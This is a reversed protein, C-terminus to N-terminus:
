IDGSYEFPFVVTCTATVDQSSLPRDTGAPQVANAYHLAADGSCSVVRCSVVRCSM